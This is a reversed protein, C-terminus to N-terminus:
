AETSKFHGIRWKEIASLAAMHNGSLLLSVVAVYTERFHPSAALNMENLLCYTLARAQTVSPGLMWNKTWAYKVFEVIVPTVSASQINTSGLTRFAHRLRNSVEFADQQALLYLDRGTVSVFEYNSDVLRSLIEAYKLHSIYGLRLAVQLVVQLWAGDVGIENKALERLGWDDSILLHKRGGAAILLNTSTADLIEEFEDYRAELESTATAAVVRCNGTVWELLAELRSRDKRVDETSIEQRYFQGSEKWVTMQPGHIQTRESIVDRLEDIAAQVIVLEGFMRQLVETVLLEHAAFATPLDLMVPRGIAEEVKQAANVREDQNGACVLFPGNAMLSRWVDLINSGSVKALLGLPFHSSLYNRRLEEIKESRRAVRNLLPELRAERPKSEDYRLGFMAPHGPFLKQFRAMCNHLAYLHRHKIWVIEGEVGGLRRDGLLVKDGVSKGLARQVTSHSIPLEEQLLIEGEDAAILVQDQEGGDILRIGFAVDREVTTRPPLAEEDGFLGIATIAIYVKPERQCRRWADFAVEMAAARLDLAAMTRAWDARESCTATSPIPHDRFFERAQQAAGQRMCAMAWLIRAQADDKHHALYEEAFKIAGLVDGSDYMVRASIRQYFPLARIQEPIEAIRRLVDSYRKKARLASLYIRFPPSDRGVQGSNKEFVSIVEDPRDLGYLSEVVAAVLRRPTAPGVLALAEAILADSDGGRGKYLGALRLPVRPDQAFRTRLETLVAIAGDVGVEREVLESLLLGANLEEESIGRKTVVSELIERARTPKDEIILAQALLNQHDPFSAPDVSTLLEVAKMAQGIQMLAIAEHRVLQPDAPDFRRGLAVSERARENDGLVFQISSLNYCCEAALPGLESGELRSIVGSLSREALRIDEVEDPALVAAPHFKEEAQLRGIIAQALFLKADVREPEAEIALMFLRQADRNESVSAHHRGMEVLVDPHSRVEQPIQDFSPPALRGESRTRISLAHLSGSNPYRELAERAAELAARWEGRLQYAVIRNALAKETDPDAQWADLYLQSALAFEGLRIQAAAMNALLRWRTFGSVREWVREKLKSLGSFAESPKYHDLYRRYEDIQTAVEAEFESRPVVNERTRDAGTGSLIAAAMEHTERVLRLQEQDKDEITEIVQSSFFEPYFERVVDPHRSLKLCIDDWGYFYVDFLGAQRHQETLERAIAQLEADNPSSTAFIFEGLPPRFTKAKEVERRLESETAKSRYNQDKGKCQVGGLRSAGKPRGYIDVGHQEQGSRGHMQTNPDLWVQSWLAHCLREFQQWDKPPFIQYSSLPM